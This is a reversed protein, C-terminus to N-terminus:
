RSPVGLLDDYLATLTERHGALSYTEMVHARGMAGYLGRLAPDALLGALASALAAPDAPTLRGTAGDVVTEAPGGEAVAVVPTECAMAEIVVRGFPEYASTVALIDLAAMLRTPDDQWPLWTIRGALPRAGTRRRLADLYDPDPHLNAGVLVAHWPRDIIQALADLFLGHRKWPVYQAVLGILPVMPLGFEAKLATRDRPTFAETDVAPHLLGMKAGNDDAYALVDHYVVNSIVAVRAARRYLQEGLRGLPALDRVHWIVPQPVPPVYLLASTTNAHILDPATAAVAGAVAKRGARMARWASWADGLSRPRRLPALALRVTDVGREAAAHLLPGEPAAVVPEWPGGALADLMALLSREAGSIEGVASVYLIRM